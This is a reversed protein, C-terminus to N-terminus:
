RVVQPTMPKVQSNEGTLSANFGEPLSQGPLGVTVAPPQTAEPNVQPYGLDHLHQAIRKSDTEFVGHKFEALSQNKAPDWIVAPLNSKYFRYVNDGDKQPNNRQVNGM